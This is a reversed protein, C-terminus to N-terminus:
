RVVIEREVVLEGETELRLRYRGAPLPEAVTFQIVGTFGGQEIAAPDIVRFLEFGEETSLSVVLSARTDPTSVMGPEPEIMVTFTEGAAMEFVDSAGGSRKRVLELMILNSAVVVTPRPDEQSATGSVSFRGLLLGAGLATIVMAAIAWVPPGIRRLVQAQTGVAARGVPGLVAQNGPAATSRSGGVSRSAPGTGDREEGGVTLLGEAALTERIVSWDKEEVKAGEGASQAAVAPTSARLPQEPFTLADLFLSALAPDDVSAARLSEMRQAGLTGERFAVIEDVAVGSLASGEDSQERCVARLAADVDMSRKLGDDGAM